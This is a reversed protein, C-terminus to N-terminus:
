GIFTGDATRRITSFISHKGSVESQINVWCAITVGVRPKNYFTAGPFIIEGISTLDAFHGCIQPHEKITVQRNFYGHNSNGSQDMAVHNEVVEFDILCVPFM